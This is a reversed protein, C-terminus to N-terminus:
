NQCPSEQKYKVEIKSDPHKQHVFSILRLTEEQASRDFQVLSIERTLKGQFYEWETLELYAIKENNRYVTDQSISYEAFDKSSLKEVQPKNVNCSALLLLGCLIAIVNKM